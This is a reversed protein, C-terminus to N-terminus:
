SDLGEERLYDGLMERARHLRGRITGEPVKIANAIDRTSLDLYYYLYVVEHYPMPLNLVHKLVVSQGSRRMVVDEVNLDHAEHLLGIEMPEESSMKLGLKDRCVNRTITTLWTKVSSDGRFSLWNRYARVFVEQSMDEAIHLDRMYFYATKLVMTGYRSMIEELAKSPDKSFNEKEEQGAPKV